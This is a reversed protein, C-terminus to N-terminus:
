SKSLPLICNEGMGVDFGLDVAAYFRRIIENFNIFASFFLEAMIAPMGPLDISITEGCNPSHEISKWFNIGTDLHWSVNKTDFIANNIILTENTLIKQSM